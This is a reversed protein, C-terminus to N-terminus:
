GVGLFLVLTYRRTGNKKGKREERARGKEIADGDRGRGEGAVM